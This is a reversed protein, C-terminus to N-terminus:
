YWSCRYHIVVTMSDGSNRTSPDCRTPPHRLHDTISGARLDTAISADMVAFHRTEYVRQKDPDAYKSTNRM